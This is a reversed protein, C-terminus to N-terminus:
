GVVKDTREVIRIGKQNVFGEERNIRIKAELALILSPFYTKDVWAQIEKDYKQIIFRSQNM